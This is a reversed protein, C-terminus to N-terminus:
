RSNVLAAPNADGVPPPWASACRISSIRRREPRGVRRWCSPKEAASSGSRADAAVRSDQQVEGCGVVLLAAITAFLKNM